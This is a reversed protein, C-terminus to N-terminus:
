RIVFPRARRHIAEISLLRAGIIGVPGPPLVLFEHHMTALKGGWRSKYELNGNGMDISRIGRQACDQLDRLYLIWGARYQAFDEDYQNAIMYRISGTTISFRFAIPKGDFYALWVDLQGRPGLQGACVHEWFALSAKSEFRPFGSASKALWSRAEITSCDRLMTRLEEDRPNTFHRIVAEGEREMRREYSRVRKMSSHGHVMSEYEGPSRPLDEAIITPEREFGALRGGLARLLADREPYARDIPGLRLAEGWRQMRLMARALARCIEDQREEVCLFFTMGKFRRKALPVVGLSRGAADSAILTRTEGTWGDDGGLHRVWGDIWEFGFLQQHEPVRDLCDDWSQRIDPLRGGEGSWITVNIAGGASRDHGDVRRAAGTRARAPALYSM